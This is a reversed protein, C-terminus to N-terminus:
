VAPLTRVSAGVNGGATRVDLRTGPELHERRVYGLALPAGLAISRCASTVWGVDKEGAFLRDGPTPPEPADIVLGVLRRNVHGRATVREMVEQGLYCGKTFSVGDLPAELAITDPGVDRGYWPVGSEIRLMEFADHGAAVIGAATREWLAVTHARPVHLHYGGAGPRPVAVVRVSTDGWSAVVHGYPQDPAAIGLSALAGRADPGIIALTDEDGVRALEVDDAVIFRELAAVAGPLAGALADLVLADDVALVVLDAVVKGQETLLLAPCGAGSALAKVDNSLMGQLFSVRDSGSARVRGRFAHDVVAARERLARYEATPDGYSAAVAVGEVVTRPVNGAAALVPSEADVSM